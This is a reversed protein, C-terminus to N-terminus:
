FVLLLGVKRHESILINFTRCAADLKMCEVGIGIKSFTIYQTPSIFQAKGASGILLIELKDSLQSEFQDPHIENIETIAPLPIIQQQTVLITQDYRQDNIMVAHSEYSKISNKEPPENQFQM